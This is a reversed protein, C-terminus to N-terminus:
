KQNQLNEWLLWLKGRVLFSHLSMVIAFVLGPTNDLFGQKGFYNQIFKGIPFAAIQFWNTKVQEEFLEEARLTSYFNIERLFEDLTVHPFHLLPQKLEATPESSIFSEHVKGVWTGSHKKALRLFYISGTEGHKLFKGWMSDIRKMYYGSIAAHKQTVSQIEEGLDNSVREDADIFLVWEHTALTLGFNRQKSFDNTLPHTIVKAGSKKALSATTDTSNDDIVIIEDCFKVSQICDIINQEENKALIIASIM